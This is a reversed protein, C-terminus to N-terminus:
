GTRTSNEPRWSMIACTATRARHLPRDVVPRPLHLLEQGAPVAHVGPQRDDPRAGPHQVHHGSRRRGATGHRRHQRQLRPVDRRQGDARLGAPDRHHQPQHIRKGEAGRQTQRQVARRDVALRCRRDAVVAVAAGARDGSDALRAVRDGLVGRGRLHTRDRAPDDERAAGRQHRHLRGRHVAQRRSHAVAARLPRALLRRGQAGGPNRGADGAPHPGLPEASRHPGVAPYRRLHLPQGPKGVVRPVGRRVPLEAGAPLVAPRVRLFRPGQRIAPRHRRLRRRAPVAPRPGLLKARRHRGARRRGRPHRHRVAAAADDGRHPLARRSRQARECARVGAAHPLGARARRVRHCRRAPRRVLFVVLRTVLVTSFVSRYGLEGFWLWDVYADIFRPGVLLLAVVVLAVGILIRSRRTLKPMRASPRMGM